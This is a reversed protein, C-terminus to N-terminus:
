TIITEKRFNRKVGPFLINKYGDQFIMADLDKCNYLFLNKNMQYCM